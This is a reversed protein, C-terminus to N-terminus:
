DLIKVEESNPYFFDVKKFEIIGKFNPITKGGKHM